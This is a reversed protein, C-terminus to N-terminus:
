KVKLQPAARGGLGALVAIVMTLITGNIGNVLAIGELIVIGSIAFLVINKEIM